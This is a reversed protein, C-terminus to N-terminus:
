QTQDQSWSEALTSSLVNHSAEILQTEAMCMPLIPEIGLQVKVKRYMYFTFRPHSTERWARERHSEFSIVYSFFHIFHLFILYVQLPYLVENMKCYMDQCSFANREMLLPHKLKMAKNSVM